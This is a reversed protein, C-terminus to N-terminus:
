PSDKSNCQAEPADFPNSKVTAPQSAAGPCRNVFGQRFEQLPLVIGEENREISSGTDRFDYRTAIEKATQQVANDVEHMQVKSVVDFSPM